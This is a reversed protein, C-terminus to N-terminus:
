GVETVIVRGEDPEFERIREQVKREEEEALRVLKLMDREKKAGEDGFELVTRVVAIGWGGVGVRTGGRMKTPDKGDPNIELSTFEQPISPISEWRATSPQTDHPDPTDSLLLNPENFCCM